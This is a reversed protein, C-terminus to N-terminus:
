EFTFVAQYQKLIEDTSYRDIISSRIVNNEWNTRRASELAKAYGLIDGDKVLLGNIGDLLIERTGGPVNFAIGPIGCALAEILANPFGEYFSGQLFIDSRLLLSKPDNHWGLFDVKDDLGLEKALKKLEIDCDGEGLLSYKFDFEVLSLARLLREIGKETSLRSVSIFRIPDTFSDRNQVCIEEYDKSIPNPIVRLLSSPLGYYDLLDQEMDLSQCIITDAASYTWKVLYNIASFRSEANMSSVITSERCILKAKFLKLRKMLTIWANVHTLTSFVFDPNIRNIQKILKPISRSVRSSNIRIIEVNSAIEFAQDM